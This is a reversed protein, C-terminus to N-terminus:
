RWVRSVLFREISFSFFLRTLPEYFKIRLRSTKTENMTYMTDEKRNDVRGHSNCHARRNKLREFLM